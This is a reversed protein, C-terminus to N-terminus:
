TRWAQAFRALIQFVAGDPCCKPFRLSVSKQNSSKRPFVPWKVVIANHPDDTRVREAGGDKLARSHQYFDINVPKKKVQRWVAGGSKVLTAGTKVARRNQERRKLFRKQDAM